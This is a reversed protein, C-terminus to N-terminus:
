DHRGGTSRPPTPRPSPAPWPRVAPWAHHYGHRHLYRCTLAHHLEAFSQFRDLPCRVRPGAASTTHANYVSLAATIMEIPITGHTMATSVVLKALDYGFPALTLDDFDVLAPGATTVVFNRINADKYIAAPWGAAFDVPLGALVTRRPTFFDRIALGTVTRHPQDLHATHLERRYAAAHLRGLTDALQDLHAPRPEAGHLHEFVLHTGTGPHLYPLCIGSDLSVLWQWHSRAAVGRAPDAYPKVYVLPTM